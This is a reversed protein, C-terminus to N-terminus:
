ASINIRLLSARKMPSTPSARPSSRAAMCACRLKADSLENLDRRITQLTVGFHTALEEVAVRGSQRLLSVIESQRYNTARSIPVSM